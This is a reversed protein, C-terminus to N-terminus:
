SFTISTSSIEASVDIGEITIGSKKAEELMKLLENQHAELKAREKHSIKPAKGATIKELKSVFSKEDATVRRNKPLRANFTSIHIGAKIDAVRRKPHDKSPTEKTSPEAPTAPTSLESRM